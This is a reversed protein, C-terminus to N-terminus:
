KAPAATVRFRIQVDDAVTDIDSWPGEGIAFQLRKLVFGGEIVANAGDQRLTVPATIDRSRGKITLKGAVDYRNPGTSKVSSSVFTATPFNKIDFWGKGKVEENAEDSGTDIAGLDVTFQAKGTEPKNPDFALQASFKRFKGEVPVNMQKSVFRIESKEPLVSSYEVAQAAAPTLAACAFLFATRTM